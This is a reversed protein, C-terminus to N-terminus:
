NGRVLRAVIEPAVNQSAPFTAAVRGRRDLIVAFPTATYGLKEAVIAADLADITGLPLRLDGRAFLDRQRASLATGVVLGKAPVGGAAHFRNWREILEGNGLCDEPQFVFVVGPAGRNALLASIPQAARQMYRTEAYLRHTAAAAVAFGCIVVFARIM